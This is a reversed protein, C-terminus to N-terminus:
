RVISIRQTSIGNATKVTAVYIGAAFDTTNVMIENADINNNYVVQGLANVITINSMQDVTQFVVYDTAPNPYVSIAVEEANNIGVFSANLNASQAANLIKCDTPDASNYNSVFAVLRCQWPKVTKNGNGLTQPLTYTYDKSFTTGTFADGWVNSIAARYVNDHQYNNGAGSQAAIISDQVLYLSIRPNTLGMDMTLEGAVTCTLQRTAENYNVNNIAINAFSPQALATAITNAVTNDPFFVPSAEDSFDFHTRDLMIAPAYTGGNVASNYFWCLTEDDSTTMADTYYGAHHCMWIVDNHGQLAAHVRDHGSPCNPCQGTTYHELLTTRSVALSADYAVVSATITNDDEIDAVGNPQSVTVVISHTGATNLSIPTTATFNYTGNYAVNIGTITETVPAGGDVSYSLVFSTLPASGKSTLTGTVNVNGMATISPLNVKNLVLENESPQAVKINDVWLINMDNSNNIVAIYITQGAYAALSGSYETWSDTCAPVNIIPTADFDTRAAGTTTSVKVQFGDPYAAEYAMADVYVCYSGDAPIQIAPTIIWRDCTGVNDFWSQSGICPAPNGQEALNNWANTYAASHASNNDNLLTWGAPIGNDFGEQFIVQASMTFAMAVAMLSLVLKKM